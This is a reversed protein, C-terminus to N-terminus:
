GQVFPDRNRRGFNRARLFLADDQDLENLVSSNKLRCLDIGIDM